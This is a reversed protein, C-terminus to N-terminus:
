VLVMVGLLGGAITLLLAESLQLRLLRLRSAGLAGRVVFEHQRGASRSLLLNVVSSCAVLMVLTIAVILLMFPTEVPGLSIVVVDNGPRDEGVSFLRGLAPEVGLLPWLDPTVRAAALREAGGGQGSLEVSMTRFAGVGAFSRIATKVDRLDAPSFPVRDIGAAPVGEHLLVLRDENAFGLPRILAANVISFVATSAGIGFGLTLVVVM